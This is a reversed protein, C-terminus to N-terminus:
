GSLEMNLSLLIEEATMKNEHGTNIIQIMKNKLHREAVPLTHTIVPLVKSKLSFQIMGDQEDFPAQLGLPDLNNWIATAVDHTLQTKDIEM